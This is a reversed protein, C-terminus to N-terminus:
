RVPRLGAGRKVQWMACPGRVVQAACRGGEHAIQADAGVHYLTAQVMNFRIPNLAGILTLFQFVFLGLRPSCQARAPDDSFLAYGAIFLLSIPILKRIQRRVRQGGLGLWVWAAVMAALAIAVGWWRPIFFVGVAVAVLFAVRRRPGGPFSRTPQPADSM